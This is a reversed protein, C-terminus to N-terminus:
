KEAEVYLSFLENTDLIDLDPTKGQRYDCRKVNKFGVNELLLELSEFDYMWKHYYHTKTKKLYFISQGEHLAILLQSWFGSIPKSAYFAMSLIEAFGIENLNRNKFIWGDQRGKALETVFKSDKEQYKQVFLGIDPVVVRIIAGPSAVRFCEQILNQGEFYTLHELFHSTFIFHVSNDEFPLGKRVDHVKIGRPMPIDYNRPLVGIVKFFKKLIPYNALTALPTKDINVWDKKITSGCGINVKIM